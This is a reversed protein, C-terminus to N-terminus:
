DDSVESGWSVHQGSWRVQGVSRGHVAAGDVGQV